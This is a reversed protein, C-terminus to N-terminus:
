GRASLPAVRWRGYAVFACLIGVILPLVAPGVGMTSLTIATAGSMIIVLGAAALPTLGPRIRLLSPLILGFGGLIEMVGIFHLFWGPMSPMDKTMEAVSMVFKMAGSFLFLLGLLAQIIWLAYTM